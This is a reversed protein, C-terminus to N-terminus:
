ARREVVGSHSTRVKAHVYSLASSLCKLLQLSERPVLTGKFDILDSLTGGLLLDTIISISTGNPHIFFHFFNIVNPHRLFRMIYVERLYSKLVPRDFESVGGPHAVRVIKVAYEKGTDRHRAIRVTSFSGAGLVNGVIYQDKVNVRKLVSHRSVFADLHADGDQLGSLSAACGM